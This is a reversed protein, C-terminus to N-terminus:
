LIILFNIATPLTSAWILKWGTRFKVNLIAM